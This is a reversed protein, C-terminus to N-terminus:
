REASPLLQSARDLILHAAKDNPSTVMVAFGPGSSIVEVKVDRSGFDCAGTQVDHELRRQLWAATLGPQAEVRIEAGRLSPPVFSIGGEDNPRFSRVSTVRYDSSLSCSGADTARAGAPWLALSLLAALVFRSVVM